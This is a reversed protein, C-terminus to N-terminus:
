QDRTLPGIMPQLKHQGQRRRVTSGDMGSNSASIRHIESFIGVVKGDRVPNEHQNPYVVPRRRRNQRGRCM